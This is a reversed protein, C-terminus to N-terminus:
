ILSFNYKFHEKLTNIRLACGLKVTIEDGEIHEVVGDIGNWTGVTGILYQGEELCKGHKIIDIIM